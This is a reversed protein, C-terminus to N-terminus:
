SRGRSRQSAAAGATILPSDGRNGPGGVVSPAGGKIRSGTGARDVGRHPRMRALGGLACRDPKCRRCWHGRHHRRDGAQGREVAPAPGNVQALVEFRAGALMGTAAAPIATVVAWPIRRADGSTSAEHDNVLIRLCQELLCEDCRVGLCAAPRLWLTPKVSIPYTASLTALRFRPDATVWPGTASCVHRPATGM